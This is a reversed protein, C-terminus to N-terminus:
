FFTARNHRFDFTDQKMLRSSQQKQWNSQHNIDQQQKHELYIPATNNGELQHVHTPAEATLVRGRCTTDNILRRGLSMACGSPTRPEYNQTEGESHGKWIGLIGHTCVFIGWAGKSESGSGVVFAFGKRM